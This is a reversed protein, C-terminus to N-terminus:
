NTEMASRINDPARTTRRTSRTGNLGAGSRVKAVPTRNRATTRQQMHEGGDGMVEQRVRKVIFLIVVKKKLDM